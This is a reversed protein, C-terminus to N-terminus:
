RKGVERRGQYGIQWVMPETKEVFEFSSKTGRGSYSFEDNWVDRRKEQERRDANGGSDM